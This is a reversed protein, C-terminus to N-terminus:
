WQGLPGGYAGMDAATGDADPFAPNGTSVCPSGPQLHFDGGVPNVFKPDESIAGAGLTAQSAVPTTVQYIDSYTVETAFDTRVGESSDGFFPGLVNGSVVTDFESPLDIDIARVTTATIYSITNNAVMLGGIDEQPTYCWFKVGEFTTNGTALSSMNLGSAVCNRVSSVGQPWNGCYGGVSIFLISLNEPAAGALHINSGLRCRIFQSGSGHDQWHLLPFTSGDENPLLALDDVEVDIFLNDYGHHCRALAKGGPLGDPATLRINSFTNRYNHVADIAATPQEVFLGPAPYRIEINEFICDYCHVIDLGGHLVPRVPGWGQIHIDNTVAGLKVIEEYVTGDADAKMMILKKGTGVGKVITKYPNEFSGDGTEDSGYDWDVWVAIGPEASCNEDAQSGDCDDDLNNGCIDEGAPINEGYCPSWGQGMELCQRHGKKCAGIGATGIPGTYCDVIDYPTCQDGCGGPTAVCGTGPDCSDSVM